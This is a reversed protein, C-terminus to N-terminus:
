VYQLKVREIREINSPPVVFVYMALNKIISTVIKAKVKVLDKQEVAALPNTSVKV